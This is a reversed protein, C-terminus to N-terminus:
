GQKTKEQMRRLVARRTSVPFALIILTSRQIGILGSVALLVMFRLYLLASNGVGFGISSSWLYLLTYLGSGFPFSGHVNM